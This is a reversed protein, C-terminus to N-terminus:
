FLEIIQNQNKGFRFEDGIKKGLMAQAIPSVPSVVFYRHGNLTIEGLSTAIFYAPGNTKVVAGVEVVELLKKPDIKALPKLQNQHQTKQSLLKEKELMMMARGTEYKDGASSKTEENANAQVLELEKNLMEVKNEITTYCNRILQAKIDVIGDKM